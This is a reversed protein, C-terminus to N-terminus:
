KYTNGFYERDKPKTEGRLKELFSEKKTKMKKAVEKKKGNIHTVASLSGTWPIGKSKKMEKQHAKVREEFSAM